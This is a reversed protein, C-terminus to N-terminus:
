KRNSRYAAFNKAAPAAEADAIASASVGGEPLDSANLETKPKKANELKTKTEALEAKLAEVDDEAGEPEAPKPEAPASLAAVTDTLTSLQTALGAFAAAFDFDNESEPTAPTQESATVEPKQSMPTEEKKTPSAFLTVMEPDFGSAALREQQEQSALAKARGHIKAHKAAGRSVLSLEMWRDMGQLILHVGDEGLTHGENCTRDWLNMYTAEDGMYDFGCESCILHKNQLGVSVEDIVGLNIKEVLSRESAPLYFQVRLEANGDETDVVSGHFARGLPLESVTDHLQHIPVGQEGSNLAEAMEVLTLRTIKGKDFLSGPKTLPHTSTATCEFVVVSDAAMEAGSIAKIKSLMDPTVTIQKYDHM